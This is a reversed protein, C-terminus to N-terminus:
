GVYGYGNEGLGEATESSSSRSAVMTAWWRINYHLWRASSWLHHPSLTRPGRLSKQLTQGALHPPLPDATKLSASRFSCIKNGGGRVRRQRRNPPLVQKLAVKVKESEEPTFNAVVKQLDAVRAQQVQSAFSSRGSGMAVLLYGASAQSLDQALKARDYPWSAALCAGSLQMASIAACITVGVDKAGMGRPKMMWVQREVLMTSSFDHRTVLTMEVKKLMSETSTSLHGQRRMQRVATVSLNTKLQAWSNAFAWRQQYTMRKALSLPRPGGAKLSASRFTCIKQEWVQSQASAQQSAPGAEIGGESERERWAYLRCCGKPPRGGRGAASRICFSSRGSGMAVLLYGASAQSLDQALYKAM